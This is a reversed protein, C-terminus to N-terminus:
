VHVAGNERHETAVRAHESVTGLVITSRTQEVGQTRHFHDELLDGLHDTDRARVKVLMCDDGAIHHVEQVGEIRMLARGAGERNVGTRLRVAVFALLGHGLAKPNVRTEYGQIVGARELKKVREFVASAALGVQRSLEANSIRANAQLAQLIRRDTEDLLAM